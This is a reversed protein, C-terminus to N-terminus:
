QRSLPNFTSPTFGMASARTASSIPATNRQGTIQRGSLTQTGLLNNPSRALGLRPFINQNALSNKSDALTKQKLDSRVKTGTLANSGTLTQASASTGLSRPQVLFQTSRNYQTYLPRIPQPRTQLALSRGVPAVRNFSSIKSPSTLANTTPMYNTPTSTSASALGTQTVTPMGPIRASRSVALPNNTGRIASTIDEYGTSYQNFNGLTSSGRSENGQFYKLGRVTTNGYVQANVHSYLGSLILTILAIFVIQYKKYM